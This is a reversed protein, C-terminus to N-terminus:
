DYEIGHLARNGTILSQLFKALDKDIYIAETLDELLRVTDNFTAPNM